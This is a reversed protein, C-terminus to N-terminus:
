LLNQLTVIERDALALDDDDNARVAARMTNSLESQIIQGIRAGPPSFDKLASSGMRTYGVVFDKRRAAVGKCFDQLYSKGSGTDGRVLMCTPM